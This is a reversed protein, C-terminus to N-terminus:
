KIATNPTARTPVHNQVFNITFTRPKLELGVQSQFCVVQAEGLSAHDKQTMTPACPGNM